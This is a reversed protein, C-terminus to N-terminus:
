AQRSQYEQEHVIWEARTVTRFKAGNDRSGACHQCWSGMRSLRGCWSCEFVEFRDALRARLEAERARALSARNLAAGLARLAFFFAVGVVIASALTEMM